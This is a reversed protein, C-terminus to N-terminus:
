EPDENLIKGKTRWGHYSIRCHGRNQSAKSYSVTDLICVRNGSFHNTSGDRRVSFESMKKQLRKIEEKGQTEERLVLVGATMM